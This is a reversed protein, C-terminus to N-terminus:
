ASGRRVSRGQRLALKVEGGIHRWHPVAWRRLLAVEARLRAARPMPSTWIREGIERVLRVNPLVVRQSRLSPQYWALHEVFGPNAVCSRRDHYRRLFLREPVQHFRGRIALEALLAVDALVFSGIGQTARLVDTRVVGFVPHWEVRHSLLVSLRAVPDADALALDHDDLPGIESGGDDILLTRPFSLVLDRDEELASVCRGVFGPACLDDDAAWKFYRGRARALVANYNWAAGRNVPVRQYDVRADARAIERCISETEDTSGNDSILVELDDHDQALLSELTSRLYRAGNYTPVGISVTPAAM